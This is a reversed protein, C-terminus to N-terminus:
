HERPVNSQSDLCPQHRSLFPEHCLSITADPNVLPFCARRIKGSSLAPVCPLSAVPLISCLRRPRNVRWKIKPTSGRDFQSGRKHDDGRGLGLRLSSCSMTVQTAAASGVSTHSKMQPKHRRIGGDPGYDRCWLCCSAPFLADGRLRSEPLAPNASPYVGLQFPSQFALPCHLHLSLSIDSIARLHMYRVATHQLGL